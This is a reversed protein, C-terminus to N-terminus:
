KETNMPRATREAEYLTKEVLLTMPIGPRLGFFDDVVYDKALTHPPLQEHLASDLLIVTSNLQQPLKSQYGVKSWHRFYWPFPWGEDHSIIQASFSDKAFAQLQQIRAVAKLVQPSAHSYVYPNRPDARYYHISQMSQMCLHYIGALLIVHLGWRLPVSSAKGYLSQAGLGALLLFAWEISMITWPTKYPILSYGLLGTVAYTSLFVRLAQRSEQKIFTGLFSQVIGVFALGLVLAETWIAPGVRNWCLLQLYYFFSKEHGDAGQSRELYSGYTCYSEWVDEWRQLGSYWAASSLLGVVAVWLWAYKLRAHRRRDGYVRPSIDDVVVRVVIWSLIMALLNIVFTEKTAHMAGLLLGACVLWLRSRGQTYRWCVTIFLALEVVLLVEMIYYRSYFVQMPSVAMFLSGVAAARRELGDVLGWTILILLLGLVACISRLQIESADEGWGQLWRALGSVYHIAPGHFDKPDYDFVGSKWFAVSKM